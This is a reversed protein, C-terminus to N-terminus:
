QHLATPNTSALDLKYTGAGGTGTLLGSIVTNATVNTGTIPDGVNLKGSGLVTVNLVTSLSTVTTSAFSTDGSVVYVGTSGATGSEQSVIATGVAVNTGSLVDTPQLTGSAVATVKMHTSTATLADGSSTTSASTQYTGNGNTTGSLQALITTGVPVGTGSIVDGVYIGGGFWWIPQSSVDASGTGTFSCGLSATVVGGISGTFSSATPLSSYMKGDSYGAYIASGVVVSSGGALTMWMDGAATITVGMGAPILNSTEALFGTILAQQERHIIGAPKGPAVPYNAAVRNAADVWAFRGVTVGEPAAVLAGPGADYSYRPNASAFDGAVAPAPQRNVTAQFTM